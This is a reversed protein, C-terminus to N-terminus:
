DSIFSLNHRGHYSNPASFRAPAGFTKMPIVPEDLTVAEQHVDTLVKGPPENWEWERRWSFQARPLRLSAQDTPVGLVISDLFPPKQPAKRRFYFVLLTILSAVLVCGVCSEVIVVVLYSEECNFGGFGIPCRECGHETWKYGSNCARCARDMPSYKYYGRRCECTVLGGHSHCESSSSDCIDFDCLSLRQYNDNTVLSACGPYPAACFLPSVALVGWVDEEAVPSLSSFSHVITVHGDELQVNIVATSLYGPIHGLVNGFLHRVRHVSWQYEAHEMHRVEDRKTTNGSIEDWYLLSVPIRAPFTRATVCGLDFHFYLGLHCQCMHLGGQKICTTLPPCDTNQVCYQASIYPAGDTQLTTNPTRPTQVEEPTYMVDSSMTVDPYSTGNGEPTTYHPRTTEEIIYAPGPGTSINSHFVDPSPSSTTGSEDAVYALPSLTTVNSLYDVSTNLVRSTEETSYTQDEETTVISSLPEATTNFTRSTEDTTYTQDEETTVISSLPEATTNFTRSTEETTYTQEEETTVISSFPDATTNFTKSTEDTTYTQAERTTVISSFPDATTNPMESREETTYILDEDMTIISSYQDTTTNFARSTEETTYTQAEESYPDATTNLIGSSEETTYIESVRTINSSYPGPTINPTRSAEEYSPGQGTTVNYGSTELTSDQTRFTDEFILDPGTTVNSPDIQLTTKPTEKSTTYSLYPEATTTNSLYTGNTPSAEERSPWTHQLIVLFLVYLWRGSTMTLDM